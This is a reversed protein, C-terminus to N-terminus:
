ISSVHGGQSPPSDNREAVNGGDVATALDAVRVPTTPTKGAKPSAEKAKPPTQEMSSCSSDLLCAGESLLAAISSDACESDKGSM